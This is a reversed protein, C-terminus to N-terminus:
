RAGFDLPERTEFLSKLSNLIAAWGQSISKWTVTEGDFDDHTMTLKRTQGIPELEYTVRSPREKAMEPDYLSSWTHSFRHYPDYELVVGAMADSGDDLWM